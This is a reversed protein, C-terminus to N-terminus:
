STPQKEKPVFTNVQAVKKLHGAPSPSAKADRGLPVYFIRDKFVALDRLRFTVWLWIIVPAVFSAGLQAILTEELGGLVTEGFSNLALLDLDASQNWVYCGVSFLIFLHILLMGWLLAWGRRRWPVPSAVVLAFLLATPVWGIGRADLELIRAPGHGTADAQARNALTIQVGIGFRPNPSPAFQVYRQANSTFAASGLAQFYGGYAGKFGPWPLILLGYLLGFGILFRLLTRRPSTMVPRLEAPRCATGPLMPSRRPM